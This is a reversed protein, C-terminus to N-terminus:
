IQLTEDDPLFNSAWKNLREDDWLTHGWDWGIETDEDIVSELNDKPTHPM